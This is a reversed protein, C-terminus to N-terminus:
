SVGGLLVAVRQNLLVVGGDVMQNTRPCGGGAEVDIVALAM